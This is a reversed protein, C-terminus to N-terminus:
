ILRKFRFVYNAAATNAQNSYIQLKLSGGDTRYTRLYLAGDSGGGARHLVIEDTPLEVDSTTTGAYWSMTGTYYENSNTGGANIDNAYLQILYSGTSLDTGSIGVDQWLTTLTISKTIAVAEVGSTTTIQTTLSVNGSGDISATGEVDGTLTLSIANAWKNVSLPLAPTGNGDLSDDTAVSVLTSNSLGSINTDFDLLVQHLTTAQSNTFGTTNIPVTNENVVINGSADVLLGAGPTIWKRVGLLDSSIIGPSVPPIGFDPEAEGISLFEYRSSSVLSPPIKEVRDSLLKFM